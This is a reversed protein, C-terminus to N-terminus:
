YVAVVVCAVRVVVVMWVLVLGGHALGLTWTRHSDNVMLIADVLDWSVRHRVDPVDVFM